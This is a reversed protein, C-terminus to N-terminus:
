IRHQLYRKLIIHRACYKKMAEYGSEMFFDGEAFWEEHITLGFEKMTNRFGQERIKDSARGAFWWHLRYESLWM